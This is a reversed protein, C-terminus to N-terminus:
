ANLFENIKEAPVAYGEVFEGTEELTGGAYNIGVIKLNEDVLMGGSSGGHIVATHCVVPYSVHSASHEETLEIKAYRQIKGLTVANFQGDPSGVAAVLTRPEANKEAIELAALPAGYEATDAFCIFSVVALDDKPSTNEVWGDYVNGYCDFVYLACQGYVPDAEVVHNNTLAYYRNGETKCIAGSGIFTAGYEETGYEAIIKVAAKVATESIENVFSSDDVYGIACASLSLALALATVIAIIKKRM